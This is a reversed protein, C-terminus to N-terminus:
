SEGSMETICNDDFRNGPDCGCRTILRIAAFDSHQAADLPASAPQSTKRSNEM